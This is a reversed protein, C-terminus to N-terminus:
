AKEDRIFLDSGALAPNADPHFTSMAAVGSVFMGMPHANYNFKRMLETVNLHVFTHYMVEHNFNTFQQKTPLEGYILLYAVELYTSKEALQEIPYGRYRLIGADGNIYTIKSKAVATNQFAPDYVRLGKSSEDEERSNPIPDATMEKFKLAPITNNEIPVEYIKNTRNDLVTLSQTNSNRPLVIVGTSKPHSTKGGTEPSPLNWSTGSVKDTLVLNSSQTM